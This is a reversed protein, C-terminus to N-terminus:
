EEPTAVGRKKKEPQLKDLIGNVFAASDASGFRRALEIAEDIAVPAPTPDNHFLMEYIGLRLVNRDTIAMRSIRWNEAIAALRTDIENRHSIAGDYLQLCYPIATPDHHLRDNIFREIDKRSVGPNV